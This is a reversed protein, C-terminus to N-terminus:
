PVLRPLRTVRSPVSGNAIMANFIANVSTMAVPIDWSINTPKPSRFESAVDELSSSWSSRTTWPRPKRLASLITEQVLSARQFSRSYSLSRPFKQVPRLLTPLMILVSVSYRLANRPRFLPAFIFIESNWRVVLAAMATLCADESGSVVLM